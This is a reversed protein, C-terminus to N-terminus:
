DGGLDAGPKREAGESNLRAVQNQENLDYCLLLTAKEFEVRYRYSRRGEENRHEVLAMSVLEGNRKLDAQIEKQTPSIGKWFEPTYDGPRMVGRMADQITARLRETVKPEQDPIPPFGDLFFRKMNILLPQLKAQALQERIKPMDYYHGGKALEAALNFKVENERESLPLLFIDGSRLDFVNSYKTAYQGKQVCACLIAAGNALTPEPSNVLMKDLTQRGFGFGRSRYAKEVTLKGDRAGIVASAGTKDAV